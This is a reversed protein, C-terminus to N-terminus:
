RRGKRAHRIGHCHHNSAVGSGQFAYIIQATGNSLTKM